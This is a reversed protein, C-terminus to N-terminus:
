LRRMKEALGTLSFRLAEEQRSIAAELEQLTVGLTADNAAQVAQGYRRTHATQLMEILRQLREASYHGREIEALLSDELWQPAQGHHALLQKLLAELAVGSASAELQGSALLEGLQAVLNELQTLAPPSAQTGTQGQWQEDWYQSFLEPAAKEGLHTEIHRALITFCVSAPSAPAFTILPQRLRVSAPLLEDHAIFGCFHVEAGLYKDVTGRFRQYVERASDLGRIDNVLVYVPHRWGSRHLVRLMSYADTLATPEATVTLIPYHASRVFDLVGRGIGAATDILIYDFHSELERLAALIRERQWQNLDACEALGSAAPVVSIGEPCEVLIEKIGRAGSLLHELTYEPAFNLLININALGTDADFVCVKHGRRALAIALNTSINTKGVGGKGSTVAIVRAPNSPKEPAETM